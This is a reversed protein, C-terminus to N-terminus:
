YLHSNRHEERWRYRRLPKNKTWRDGLNDSELIMRCSELLKLPQGDAQIIESVEKLLELEMKLGEVVATTTVQHTCGTEFTGETGTSRGGNLRSWATMSLSANDGEKATEARQCFAQLRRTLNRGRM